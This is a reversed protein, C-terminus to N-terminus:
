SAQLHSRTHRALQVAGLRLHSASEGSWPGLLVTAPPWLASGTQASGAAASCERWGAGAFASHRWLLQGPQGASVLIVSGPEPDKILL